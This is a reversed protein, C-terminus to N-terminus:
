LMGLFSAGHEPISFATISPAGHKLVPEMIHGTGCVAESYGQGKKETVDHPDDEHHGLERRKELRAKVWQNNLDGRAEGNAEGHRYQCADGRPCQNTNLWYKCMGKKSQGDGDMGVTPPEPVFPAPGSWPVSATVAILHLTADGDGATGRKEVWFRGTVRSGVQVPCIAMLLGYVLGLFQSRKLYERGNRMANVDLRSYRSREWKGNSCVNIQRRYQLALEVPM